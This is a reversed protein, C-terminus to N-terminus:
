VKKAEYSIAEQVVKSLEANPNLSYQLLVKGLDLATANGPLGAALQNIIFINQDKMKLIANWVEPSVYIQQSVNYDYETKITQILSNHFTAANAAPNEESVRTVLGALAIRETFLTLREFAQLKLKMAENNIGARSRIEEKMGKFEAILWVLALTAAALGVILITLELNM